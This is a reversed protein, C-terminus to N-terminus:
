ELELELMRRDNRGSGVGTREVDVEQKGEARALYSPDFQSM